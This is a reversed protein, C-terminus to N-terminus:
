RSRTERNCVCVPRQGADSLEILQQKTVSYQPLACATAAPVSACTIKKNAKARIREPGVREALEALSFGSPQESIRAPRNIISCM